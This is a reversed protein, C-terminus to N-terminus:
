TKKNNIIYSCFTVSVNRFYNNHTHRYITISSTTMKENIQNIQRHMRLIMLKM